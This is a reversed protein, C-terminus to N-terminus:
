VWPLPLLGSHQLRARHFLKAGLVAARARPPAVADKFRAVVEDFLSETPWILSRPFAWRLEEIVAEAQADAELEAYVAALDLTAAGAEIL